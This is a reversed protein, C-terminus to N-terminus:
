GASCKEMYLAARSQLLGADQETRKWQTHYRAALIMLPM